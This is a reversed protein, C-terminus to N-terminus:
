QDGGVGPDVSVTRQVPVVRHPAGHQEMCAVGLTTVKRIIDLKDETNGFHSANVLLDNAYGIIYLAFEDVSREGAGPRGGSLTDGWRSDQYNRESDIARFAAERETSM